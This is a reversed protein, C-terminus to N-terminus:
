VQLGVLEPYTHRKKKKEREKQYWLRPNISLHWWMHSEILTLSRFEPEEVQLTTMKALQTM